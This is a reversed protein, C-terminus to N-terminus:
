KETGEFCQAVHKTSRYCPQNCAVFNLSLLGDNNINAANRCMKAKTCNAYSSELHMAVPVATAALVAPQQQSAPQSIAAAPQQQSTGTATLRVLLKSGATQQCTQKVTDCHAADRQGRGQCTPPVNGATAGLGWHVKRPRKGLRLPDM